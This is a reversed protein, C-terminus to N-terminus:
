CVALRAEMPRDTRAICISRRLAPRGTTVRWGWAALMVAVLIGGLGFSQWAFDAGYSGLAGLWNHIKQHASAVTNWSPDEPDYTLMALAAALALLMVLGGALWEVFRGLALRMNDPLLVPKRARARPSRILTRPM